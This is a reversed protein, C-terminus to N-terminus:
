IRNLAQKLLPKLESHTKEFGYEKISDSIDKSLSLCTGNIGYRERYKEIAKKGADDNDFLTIISKYKTKLNEILYPKIITNESDPAIVEINYGFGMLCMADKLSSCIVLYPQNYELQDLGQIHPALKHFKHKKKLPQYIKYPNGDADCYAYIHNGKIELKAINGDEEKIMTYYDVPKVNYKELMSKGIRFSLWYESDLGNWERSKVFDLKWKAKPSLKIDKISKNQVAKNYDTLLKDCAHAYGINFLEMILSVKDGAKGSSFDKFRYQREAKELYICMSPTREASNWISKIKVDQGTLPETLDLYHQFVWYSPVQEISVVINRTSFM